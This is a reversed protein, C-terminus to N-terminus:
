LTSQDHCEEKALVISLDWGGFAYSNSMTSNLSEVRDHVSCFSMKPIAPDPVGDWNHPPLRKERNRESLLLWCLGLEITGSAGLTHGTLSKTSSCPPCEQFVRSTAKGEMSDNLPTGTGHLNVYDVKELGAQDLAEKMARAAGEGEPHPATIHHGDSCSGMGAIIVPSTHFSEKTLVLLAAGEGINIGRRNKSFPKTKNGDVAELSIFGKLVLESVNDCGGAIVADALGAQILKVGEVVASAGSACATALAGCYGNLSFYDQVYDAPLHAQQYKLEYDAPFEGTEGKVQAAALSEDSGYGSTGVIVAIRHAAHNKKLAEVTPTIEECCYKLFSLVDNDWGCTQVQSKVEADCRATYCDVPGTSDPTLARNDGQLVAELFAEKGQALASIIGLDEIYVPKM